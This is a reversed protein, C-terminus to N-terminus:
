KNLTIDVTNLVSGRYYELVIEDGINFSYIQNQLLNIDEIATNNIKTIVDGKALGALQLPYDKTVELVVVGNDVAIDIGYDKLVEKNTTNVFIGGINPRILEQNKLKTVIDLVSEIPVYYGISDNEEKLSIMGIVEDNVNFVPSGSNGEIINGKISVANYFSNGYDTNLIIENKLDLVVAEMIRYKDINFYYVSDSKKVNNIGIKSKKLGLKNEIELIAIDSYKDYEVIKALERKNNLNYVYVSESDNVVHYNTVIYSKSGKIKYVFGMGEKLDIRNSSKIFVISNDVNYNNFLNIILCVFILLGLGIFIIKKM